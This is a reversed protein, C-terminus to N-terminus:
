QGGFKRSDTKPLAWVPTSGSRSRMTGNSTGPEYSFSRYTRTERQAVGGSSDSKKNSEIKASDSSKNIESNQSPEYSFSREVTPANARYTLRPQSRSMQGYDGRM